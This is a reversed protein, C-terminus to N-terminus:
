QPHNRRMHWALFESNREDERRKSTEVFRRASEACTLVERWPFDTKDTRDYIQRIVDLVEASGQPDTGMRRYLGCAVRYLERNRMSVPVGNKVYEALADDLPAGSSETHHSEARPAPSAAALWGAFWTPVDPVAHPCSVVWDYPVPVQGTGAREGPRIIPSILQMSPPAVVLGGDGKVDVGPLIGPREPVPVDWPWRLWLHAGGSPTRVTPVASWEPWPQASGHLFSYFERIGNNGRKVDLDVVMLRNVSGTAVGVNAAMDLGWWDMVQDPDRSALHVGGVPGLMAHPRKGGRALPIVSYGLAAYRLAVAGLGYRAPLRHGEPFWMCGCAPIAQESGNNM